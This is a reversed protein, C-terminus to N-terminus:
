TGSFARLKALCTGNYSAKQHPIHTPRWEYDDVTVIYSNNGEQYVVRNQDARLTKIFLLEAAPDRAIPATGVDDRDTLLLPVYIYYGPDASVTAKITHRQIIPGTSTITADRNLVHRVELAESRLEPISFQGAIINTLNSGVSVFVGDAKAVYVFHTGSLSKYRIDLYLATKLDPTGFTFLGTDLTGTAVKNATDEAFFGVGSVTFVRRSQFTVISEVAGQGTAMLDSAYAPTLSFPFDQLSLRGLGTSASDYNSWGFWVYKDQPEFARVSNSRLLSGIILNGEGDTACFRVGLDTGLLIFGLYGQISRVIEGDPLEGAVIPPDLATGEAQVATKYIISKDGSFGAAYIFGQGEAFGVWSFDANRHTFLAAPLAAPGPYATTVNYISAGNAAMIRDKVFAVLSVSGTVYSATTTVSKTSRYIGDVGHATLVNFGDSAISVPATAPGGTVSTFVPVAVTIDTTFLIAGGDICYLRDGTVTMRLNTNASARASKTAPLLGMEWKTWIDVGKSSRFRAINSEPKDVYTQGAGMHWSDQARRWTGEPNLSSEGPLGSTDSQPRLLAISVHRHQNSEGDLLYPHGALAVPYKGPVIISAVSRTGTYFPYAFKAKFGM